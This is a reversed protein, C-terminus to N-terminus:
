PLSNTRGRCRLLNQNRLSNEKSSCPIAVARRHRGNPHVVLAVVTGTSFSSLKQDSRQIAGFIKYSNEYATKTPTAHFRWEVSVFDTRVYWRRSWLIPQFPGYSKIRGNSRAWIKLPTEMPQKRQLLMSVCSCASSTRQPTGIVRGSYRSM